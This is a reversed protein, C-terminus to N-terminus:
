LIKISSKTDDRDYGILIYLHVALRQPASMGVQHLPQYAAVSM